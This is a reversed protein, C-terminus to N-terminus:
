KLEVTDQFPAIFFFQESYQVHTGDAMAFVRLEFLKTYVSIGARVSLYAFAKNFKM